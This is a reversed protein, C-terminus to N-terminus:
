AMVALMDFIRNGYSKNGSIAVFSEADERRIGKTFLRWAIEPAITITYAPILDCKTVLIWDNENPYLFWDGGSEGTIIVQIVEGEVAAVNRFHHPLARMSTDLYPFYLERKYLVEEKGVALRIQQQHHYKETYERAIHFWNQSESEGAWSVSFVAKELPDKTRILSNYEKGTIELLETLVKPSVRKMANVWDANLRNLYEVLDAYSHINDPKEEFYHDRLMSLSRINGDLLHAAVDKVKWCPAITQLEWDKQQLSRLMELLNEDLLPFLHTIFIPEVPKMNIDM